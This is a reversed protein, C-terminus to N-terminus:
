WELTASTRPTVCTKEELKAKPVWGSWSIGEVELPLGVTKTALKTFPLESEKLERAYRNLGESLSPFTVTRTKM